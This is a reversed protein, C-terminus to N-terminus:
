SSLFRHNLGQPFAEENQLRTRPIGAPSLPARSKSRLFMQVASISSVLSPDLSPLQAGM